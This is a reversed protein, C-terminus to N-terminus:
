PEDKKRGKEPGSNRITAVSNRREVEEMGSRATGEMEVRSGVTM